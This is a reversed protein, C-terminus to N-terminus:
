RVNDAGKDKGGGHKIFFALASIVLTSRSGAEIFSPLVTNRLIRQRFAAGV